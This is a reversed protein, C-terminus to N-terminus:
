TLKSPVLLFNVSNIFLFNNKNAKKLREKKHKEHTFPLFCLKLDGVLKNDITM